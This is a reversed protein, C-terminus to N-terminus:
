KKIRIETYKEALELLQEIGLPKSIVKMLGKKIAEQSKPEFESFGTVIIVNATNDIKKIQKFAEYGNLIPMDGDMIVLSPRKEIYKKVGEEGNLATEVNFEHLELIEKYIELLDVDDEVILISKSM